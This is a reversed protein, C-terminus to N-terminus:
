GNSVIECTKVTVEDLKEKKLSGIKYRILSKHVTFMRTLRIISSVKLNGESLDGSSLAIDGPFNRIRTTIEVLVVDEGTLSILILAPRKKFESANSFPFNVVVVDGKVFREM